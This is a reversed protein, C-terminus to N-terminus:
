ASVLAESFWVNLATVIIEVLQAINFRSNDIVLDYHFPHEPDTVFFTELYRRRQDEGQTVIKEAEAFPLERNSAITHVRWSRPAVLRIHLGNKLDQTAMSSGRGVLVSHGHLAMARITEALERVAATDPGDPVIISDLVRNMRDRRREDLTELLARRVDKQGRIKDLLDRDYSIWPVSPHFRENLTETLQDALTLAECGFERSIAVFPYTELRQTSGLPKVQKWANVHASVRSEVDSGVWTQSVKTM